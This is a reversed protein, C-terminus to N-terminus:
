KGRNIRDVWVCYRELRSVQAAVAGTAEVAVIAVDNRGCMEGLWQRSPVICLRAELGAQMRRKVGDDTQRVLADGADQARLLLLPANNWLRHMVADRGIAATACHRAFMRTLQQQLAGAIRERLRAWQPLAVRFKAKLSQLRKDNTRQLCHEDLCHYIGRGPAQQLLDPWIEGDDDVVLRLMSQRCLSARCIMCRRM